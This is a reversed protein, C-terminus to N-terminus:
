FGSVLPFIDRLGQGVVRGQVFVLGMVILALVLVFGVSVALLPPSAPLPAPPAPLESGRSDILTAGGRIDSLRAEGMRLLADVEAANRGGTFGARLGWVYLELLEPPGASLIREYNPFFKHGVLNSRNRRQELTEGEWVQRVQLAGGLAASDLMAVVALEADQVSSPDVGDALASLSAANLRSLLDAHLAVPDIVSVQLDRLRLAVYVFPAYAGLLGGAFLRPLATTEGVPMVMTMAVQRTATTPIALLQPPIEVKTRM